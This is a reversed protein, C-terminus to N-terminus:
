PTAHASLGHMAEINPRENTSATSRLSHTSVPPERGQADRVSISHPISGFELATRSLQRAGEGFSVTAFGALAALALGSVVAHLFRLRWLHNRSHMKFVTNGRAVLM